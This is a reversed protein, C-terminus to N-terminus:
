AAGTPLIKPANLPPPIRDVAWRTAAAWGGTLTTVGPPPAGKAGKPPAVAAAVGPVALVTTAGIVVLAAFRRPDDRILREALPADAASSLLAWGHPTVRAAAALAAPLTALAAATTRASPQVTVTLTDAGAPTGGLAVLVPYDASRRIHYGAPVSLQPGATLNWGASGPPRWTVAGHALAADLRGAPRHATVPAMGTDGSLAQWSPYFQEHRNAVLGVSLVVLVECLLVGVARSLLRWRGYRSWLWVTGAVAVATALLALGILPVGTLAM